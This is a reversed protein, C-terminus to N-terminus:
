NVPVTMVRAAWPCWCLYAFAAGEAELGHAAARDTVLCLGDLRVAALGPDAHAALAAGKATPYPMSALTTMM